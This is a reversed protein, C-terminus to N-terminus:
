PREEVIKFSTHGTAKEHIVARNAGVYTQGDSNCVYLYTM